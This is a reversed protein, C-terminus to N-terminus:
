QAEDNTRVFLAIVCTPQFNILIDFMLKSLSSSLLWSTPINYLNDEVKRLDLVYDCAYIEWVVQLKTFCFTFQNM